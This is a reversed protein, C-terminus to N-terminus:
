RYFACDEVGKAMVMGSTQQLRARGAPERTTCCRRSSTTRRRSTPGTSGRAPRVAQDLHDRGEPLYSRYVPFCALLEGIADAVADDDAREGGVARRARVERM